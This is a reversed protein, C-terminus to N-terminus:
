GFYKIIGNPMEARVVKAYITKTWGNKKGRKNEILYSDGRVAAVIHADYFKGRVKCFVIDGVVYESRIEFFLFSGSEIIPSMSNGFAKKSGQGTETLENILREYAALM